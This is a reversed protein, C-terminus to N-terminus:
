WPNVLGEFVQVLRARLTADPVIGVRAMAAATAALDEARPRANPNLAGEDVALAFVAHALVAEDLLAWAEALPRLARARRIDVIRERATGFLALAEDADARAGAADGARARVPALQALLVIEDEPLWAVEDMLAVHRAVFAQAREQSGHASAVDALRRLVELTITRPVKTGAAELAQEVRALREADDHFLEYFRVCALLVSRVGDLTGATLMADLQAMCAEFREADAGAVLLDEVAPRESAELQVAIEAARAPEGLAVFARAVGARIRDRRWSQEGEAQAAVREAAEIFARADDPRGSEACWRALEAFGVGRRWNHIDEYCALARAPQGLALAAEAVEAQVRARDKEHPQMPIASAARWALQLLEVRAEPLEADAFAGDPALPLACLAGLLLRGLARRPSRDSPLLTNM